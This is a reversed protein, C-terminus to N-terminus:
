PSAQNLPQRATRVMERVQRGQGLVGLKTFGTEQKEGPGVAEGSSGAEALGRKGKEM